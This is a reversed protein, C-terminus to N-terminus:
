LKFWAHDLATKATLREKPAYKLIMMLLESFLDIEERFIGRRVGGPGHRSEYFLGPALADQLSRPEPQQIISIETRDEGHAPYAVAGMPEADRRIEVARGNADANDEFFEKRAEWATSWWPEPFKGLILALKCLHEDMDDDFTDFLRRGTRIEFLTCGLAWIDSSIGVNKDLVYEPSCYIQPIGLDSPPDLVDFSEGFDIVCAKDTISNTGIASLEVDDWIIPYVLYQPATPENHSEGSTTV